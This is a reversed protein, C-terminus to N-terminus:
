FVADLVFSYLMGDDLNDLTYVTEDTNLSKSDRNDTYQAEFKLAVSPMFDWRVGAIWSHTEVESEFAAVSTQLNCLDTSVCPITDSGFSDPDTDQVAFTLHPTFEGFNKAISVMYGQDDPIASDDFELMTWEVIFLFGEYDAMMAAEYFLVQTDDILLDDAISDFPGGALAPVSRLSSDLAELTANTISIEAHHVSARLTLWDYNATFVLGAGTNLDLEGEQGYIEVDDDYTGFYVQSSVEWDDGMWTTYNLDLGDISSFPLRYVEAPPRIWHYSYGVEISESYAFFPARLRGARTVVEDNVDFQLFLGNRKLILVIM